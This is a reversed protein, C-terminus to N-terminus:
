IEMQSNFLIRRKSSTSEFALPQMTKVFFGWYDNDAMHAAASLLQSPYNQPSPAVTYINSLSALKRQTCLLGYSLRCLDAVM